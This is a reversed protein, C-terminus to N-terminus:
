EFWNPVNRAPKEFNRIFFKRTEEWCFLLMSFPLGTMGLNFVDLPRAGFAANLGPIYVIALFICTECIVGYIMVTNLPSYILSM